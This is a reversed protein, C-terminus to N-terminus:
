FIFIINSSKPLVMAHYEDFNNPNVFTLYKKAEDITMKKIIDNDM